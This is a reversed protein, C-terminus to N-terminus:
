VCNEFTALLQVGENASWIWNAREFYGGIGGCTKTSKTTRGGPWPLLTVSKQTYLLLRSIDYRLVFENDDDYIQWLTPGSTSGNRDWTVLLRKLPRGHNRRGTPSHYKMVRPNKKEGIGWLNNHVEHDERRPMASIYGVESTPVGM